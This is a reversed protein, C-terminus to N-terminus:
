AAVAAAPSAPLFAYGYDPVGQRMAVLRFVLTGRDGIAVSGPPAGTLKVITRVGTDGLEALVLTYPTVLGPVPVRVTALSYIEADRPLAVLETPEESGCALCRLRPPLSLEGCSSCRAAELRVKADFAREHAPLAISISAGETYTGQPLARPTPEDRVVAIDSAVLEARVVTAQDVAVLGGGAGAIAALAFGTASAGVTPLMPAGRAISTAEKGALGAVADATGIGLRTLSEGVGRERLLRPDGYDVVRGHQDRTRVPLSRTIRMPDLLAAGDGDGACLVASSGAAGSADTGIVLTGPGGVAIEDLAAAAGGIVERIRTQEDLGLGALVPASNGGEVLPLDRSVLVVAVVDVDPRTRRAARGAAVALTVADEDPGVVRSRETGWVPLSTGIAAITSM